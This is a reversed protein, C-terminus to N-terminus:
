AQLLDTLQMAQITDKWQSQFHDEKAGFHDCHARVCTEAFVAQMQDPSRYEVGASAFQMWTNLLSLWGHIVTEDGPGYQASLLALSELTLREHRALSSRYAAEDSRGDQVSVELLALLQLPTSLHLLLQRTHPASPSAAAATSGAASAASAKKKKKKKKAASSSSSSGAVASASAEDGGAASVAAADESEESEKKDDGAPSAAAAAAANAATAPTANTAQSAAAAIEEHSLGGKGACAPGCQSAIDRRFQAVAAELKSKMAILDTHARKFSLTGEDSAHIASVSEHVRPEMTEVMAVFSEEMSVLAPHASMPECWEKCECHFGWGGCLAQRDRYLKADFGTYSITLEEGEHVPRLTRVFMCDGVVFWHSNPHCAHNLFSSPIWLGTSRTAVPASSADDGETAAANSHLTSDAPPAFANRAVILALRELDIELDAAELEESEEATAFEAAAVASSAAGAGGSTAAASSARYVDLPSREALRRARDEEYRESADLRYLQKILSPQAQMKLALLTVLASAMREERQDDTLAPKGSAAAAAADETDTVLGVAKCCLITTQAPICVPPPGEAVASVCGASTTAHSSAILGRSRGAIAAIQVRPHVYEAHPPRTPPAGADAEGLEAKRKSYEAWEAKYRQTEQQMARLDFEAHEHERQLSALQKLKPMIGTLLQSLTPLSSAPSAAPASAPADTSSPAAATAAANKAAQIAAQTRTLYARLLQEASRYQRRAILATAHAVAAAVDPHSALQLSALLASASSSASSSMATSTLPREPEPPTQAATCALTRRAATLSACRLAAVIRCRHANGCLTREHQPSHACCTPVSHVASICRPASSPGVERDRIGRASSETRWEWRGWVSNSIRARRLHVSLAIAAAISAAASTVAATATAGCEEAM